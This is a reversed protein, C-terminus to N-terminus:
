LGAAYRLSGVMGLGAGDAFLVHLVGASLVAAMGATGTWGILLPRNRGLISRIRAAAAHENGGSM